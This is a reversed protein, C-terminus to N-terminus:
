EVTSGHVISTLHVIEALVDALQQFSPSMLLFTGVFRPTTLQILLGFFPAVLFYLDSGQCVVGTRLGSIM